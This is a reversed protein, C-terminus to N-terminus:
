KLAATDAPLRAAELRLRAQLHRWIDLNLEGRIIMLSCRSAGSVPDAQWRLCMWGPNSQSDSHLEASFSLGNARELRWQGSQLWSAKCLRHPGWWGLRYYGVGLLLLSLTVLALRPCLLWQPILWPVGVCIALQIVVLMRRQWSWRPELMLVPSNSSLM